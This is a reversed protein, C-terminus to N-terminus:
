NKLAEEIRLIRYLNALGKAHIEKKTQSDARLMESNCTHCFFFFTVGCIQQVGDIVRTEYRIGHLGGGTFKERCYLCHFASTDTIAQKASFFDKHNEFHKPINFQVISYNFNNGLGHHWERSKMKPNM